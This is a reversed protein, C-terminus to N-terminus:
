IFFMILATVISGAFTALWEITNFVSKRIIRDILEKFFGISFGILLAYYWTPALCALWGGALFHLINDIGIKKIITMQLDKM